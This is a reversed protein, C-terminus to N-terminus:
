KSTEKQEDDTDIFYGEKKDIRKRGRGCSLDICDYNQGTICCCWNCIPQDKLDYDKPFGEIFKLM